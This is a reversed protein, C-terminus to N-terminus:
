ACRVNHKPIYKIAVSLGTAIEQERYARGTIGGGLFIDRVFGDLAPPPDEDAM